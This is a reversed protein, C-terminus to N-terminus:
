PVSTIFLVKSNFNQKNGADRVVGGLGIRELEDSGGPAERGVLPQEEGTYYARIQM